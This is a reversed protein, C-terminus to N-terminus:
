EQKALVLNLPSVLLVMAGVSILIAGL